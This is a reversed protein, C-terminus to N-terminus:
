LQGQMLREKEIKKKLEKVKKRYKRVRKTVSLEEMKENMLFFHSSM